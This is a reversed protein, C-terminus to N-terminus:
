SFVQMFRNLVQNFSKGEVPENKNFLERSVKLIDRSPSANPYKIVFPTQSKVANLVCKDERVMGLYNLKIDLFKGVTTSLIAFSNSAESENQARNVVVGVEKKIEYKDIVKIFQYADSYSTPEPNIVVVLDQAFMTYLILSKNIGAGADILIIDIDSLKSLEKKLIEQHRGASNMLELADKGGAIFKIGQPGEVVVEEITREGRIVDQLTYSPMAGCLVDINTFGFDIDIILVNKGAKQETLGLNLTFNTKGVGGKGSCVAVVRVNKAEEMQSDLELFSEAKNLTPTPKEIVEVADVQEKQAEKPTSQNENSMEKVPTEKETKQPEVKKASNESDLKKIELTKTPADSDMGVVVTKAKSKKNIEVRKKQSENQNPENEQAAEKALKEQGNKRAERKKILVESIRKARSKRTIEVRKKQPESENQPAEESKEDELEVVPTDITKAKSKKTIEVRKKQPEDHTEEATEKVSVEEENKEVDTEVM